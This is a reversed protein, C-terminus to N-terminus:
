VEVTLVEVDFLWGRDSASVDGLLIDAVLHDRPPFDIEGITTVLPAPDIASRLRLRHRGGTFTVSAWDSSQREVLEITGGLAGTLGRLIIRVPDSM